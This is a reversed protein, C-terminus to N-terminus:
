QNADVAGGGEGGVHRFARELEHDTNTSRGGPARGGDSRARQTSTSAAAVDRGGSVNALSVRHRGFASIFPEREDEGRHTQFMLALGQSCSVRDPNDAPWMQSAKGWGTGERWLQDRPPPTSPNEPDQM